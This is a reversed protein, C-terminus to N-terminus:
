LRPTSKRIIIKKKKATGLGSDVTVKAAMNVISGIKRKMGCKTTAFPERNNIYLKTNQTLKTLVQLSSM